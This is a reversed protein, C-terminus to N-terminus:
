PVVPSAAPRSGVGHTPGLVRTFLWLPVFVMVAYFVSSLYTTNAFLFLLVNGFVIFMVRSLSDGRRGQAWSVGFLFGLVGLLVPVGYYSVDSAFWTYASHWNGFEDIGVPQLRHMYTDNWVDVGFVRALSVLAVTNGVFGTSIFDLDFAFCTHYYGQALYTVVMVYTPQLPPPVISLSPHDLIMPAGSLSYKSVDVESFNSRRYLNHSFFAISVAFLVTMLLLRRRRSRPQQQWFMTSLAFTTVMSVVGFGTAVAVWYFLEVGILAVFLTRYLRRLRTFQVFGAAFFLQNFIAIVFFATWSVSGGSRELTSSYGFHPDRIGAVLRDVIGTLDFPSMELRYAYTIPSTVVYFALLFPFVQDLSSLPLTDPAPRDRGVDYGLRFGAFILLQCLVVYLCLLPVNETQWDIPATVFVFVTFLNFGSIGLIPRDRLLNVAPPPM